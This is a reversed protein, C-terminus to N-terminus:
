KSRNILEKTALAHLDAMSYSLGECKFFHGRLSHVTIDQGNSTEPCDLAIHTYFSKRLSDRNFMSDSAPLPKIYGLKAAFAKASIIQVSRKLDKNIPNRTLATSHWRFSKVLYRTACVLGDTGTTCGGEETDPGPYGFVSAKWVGSENQLQQWVWDHKYKTPEFEGSKSKHIRAKVGTRYNGLDKVELPEGIIWSDPDKIGLFYYSPNRGLECYHDQDIFGNEVFYDASDLLAKQEIVDGEYDCTTASAEFDIIREGGQISAKILIPLEVILAESKFEVKCGCNCNNENNCM